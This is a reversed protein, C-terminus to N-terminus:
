TTVVRRVEVVVDDPHSGTTKWEVYSWEVYKATTAPAAVVSWEVYKAPATVVKTSAIGDAAYAPVVGLLATAAGLVVVGILRKRM